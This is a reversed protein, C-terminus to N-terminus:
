VGIRNAAYVNQFRDSDARPRNIKRVPTDSSQQGAQQSKLLPLIAPHRRLEDDYANMLNGTLLDVKTPSLESSLHQLGQMLQAPAFVTIQELGEDRAVKKLWHSLQRAFRRYEAQLQQYRAQYPKGISGPEAPYRDYAGAPMSAEIRDREEFRCSKTKPTHFRLLRAQYLSAVVVWASSAIRQETNLDLVPTDM